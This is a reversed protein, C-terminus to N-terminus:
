LYGLYRVTKKGLKPRLRERGRPTINQQFSINTFNVAEFM